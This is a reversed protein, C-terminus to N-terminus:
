RDEKSLHNFLFNLPAFKENQELLTMDDAIGRLVTMDGHCHGNILGPLIIKNEASIYHEGDQPLLKGKIIDEIKGDKIGLYGIFHRSNPEMTVIIGESIVFDYFM